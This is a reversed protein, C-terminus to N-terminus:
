RKPNQVKLQLHAIAINEGSFLIKMIHIYRIRSCEWEGFCHMMHFIAQWHKKSVEVFKRRICYTCGPYRINFVKNSLPQKILKGDDKEPGCVRKGSDYFSEYNSTLVMIQSNEAMIKEMQELKQPKWIDDQDCPFVLDGTTSWIGEMFNRKWGKNEHNVAFKWTTLNHESIFQEIIQPTNDTSCDDFILVEDAKRTQNLISDLQETIYVEGNYTSLVISLRM